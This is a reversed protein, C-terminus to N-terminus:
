RARAKGSTARKAKTTVCVDCQQKARTHEASARVLEELVGADLDAVRKVYLCGAGSKYKGLKALRADEGDAGSRVYLVLASSRPSFGVLCMDGERGSDYKYHYSGFGIISSGWMVPKEGTARQFLKVLATADKRREPDTVGAIFSAATM